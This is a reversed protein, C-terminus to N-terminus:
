APRGGGIAKGRGALDPVIIYLTQMGGYSVRFGTIVEDFILLTGHERTLQRLGELFGPAPPVLGMNGAAPEVIVCAVQGPHQELTHRVAALNNFPVTFTHRALAAPVGPCDPCGYTMAGPGSKLLMSVANCDYDVAVVLLC